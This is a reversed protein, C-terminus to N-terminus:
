VQTVAGTSTWSPPDSAPFSDTIVDDLAADDPLDADPVSLTRARDAWQRYARAVVYALAMGGAAWALRQATTLPTSLHSM